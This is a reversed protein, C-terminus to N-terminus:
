ATSIVPQPAEVPAAPAAPKLHIKPMPKAAFMPKVAQKVAQKKPAPSSKDLAAQMKAKTAALRAIM